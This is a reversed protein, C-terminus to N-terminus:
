RATDIKKLGQMAVGISDAFRQLSDGKEIPEVGERVSRAVVLSFVNHQAFGLKATDSRKAQKSIEMLAQASRPSDLEVTFVVFMQASRNAPDACVTMGAGAESLIEEVRQDDVGSLWIAPLKNAVELSRAEYLEDAGIADLIDMGLAILDHQPDYSAFGSRVFGIGTDLEVQHYGWSEGLAKSHPEREVFSLLLEATRPEALKAAAEFEAAVDLDLREAGHNLLAISMLVDRYDTREADIMALATLGDQLITPDEERLAFVASRDAFTMLTYFDDMPIADRLTGCKDASGEVALTACWERLVQDFPQPSPNLLGLEGERREFAVEPLPSKTAGSSRRLREDEKAQADAIQQGLVITDQQGREGEVRPSRNKTMLYFLIAAPILMAVVILIKTGPENLFPASTSLCELPVTQLSPHSPVALQPALMGNITPCQAYFSSALLPIPSQSAAFTFPNLFLSTRSRPSPAPESPPHLPERPSM